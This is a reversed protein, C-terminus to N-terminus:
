HITLKLSEMVPASLHLFHSLFQKNRIHRDYRSHTNQRYFRYVTCNEHLNNIRHLQKAHINNVNHNSM